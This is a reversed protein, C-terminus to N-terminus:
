RRHSRNLNLGPIPSPDWPTYRSYWEEVVRALQSTHARGAPRSQYSSGASRWSSGLTYRPSTPVLLMAAVCPLTRATRATRWERALGYILVDLIVDLAFIGLLQTWMPVESGPIAKDWIGGVAALVTAVVVGGTVRVRVRM